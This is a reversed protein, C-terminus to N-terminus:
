NIFIWAFFGIFYIPFRGSFKLSNRCRALMQPGRWRELCMHHILFFGSIPGWEDEYCRCSRIQGGLFFIYIYKYIHPFQSILFVHHLYLFMEFCLFIQNFCCSVTIIKSIELSKLDVKDCGCGDLGQQKCARGGGPGGPGLAGLGTYPFGLRHPSGLNRLNNHIPFWSDECQPSTQQFM